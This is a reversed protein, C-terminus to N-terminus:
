MPVVQRNPATSRGSRRNTGNATASPIVVASWTKRERVKKPRATSATPWSWSAKCSMPMSGTRTFSSAKPIEMAVAPMAPASSTTMWGTWGDSPRSYM